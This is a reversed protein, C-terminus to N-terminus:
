KGECNGTKHIDTKCILSVRTLIMPKGEDNKRDGSYIEFTVLSIEFM